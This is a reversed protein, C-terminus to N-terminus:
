SCRRKITNITRDAKNLLTEKYAALYEDMEFGYLNMLKKIFGSRPTALGREWNDIRHRTTKLKYATSSVSFGADKRKTRLFPGVEM